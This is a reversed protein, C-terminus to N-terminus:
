AASRSISASFSLLRSPHMAVRRQCPDARRFDDTEVDRLGSRRLDGNGPEARERITSRGEVLRDREREPVAVELGVVAVVEEVLHVESSMDM